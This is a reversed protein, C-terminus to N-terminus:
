CQFPHGDRVKVVQKFVETLLRLPFALDNVRVGM